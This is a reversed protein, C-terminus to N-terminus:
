ERHESNQKRGTFHDMTNHVGFIKGALFDFGKHPLVGKLLPVCRVMFPEQLINKNKRVAAIIKETIFEPTLLPTLLPPRVGDFMGTNIYGPMVTTVQVGTDDRQMELRLSESWGIVAWKSSAYVSMKPNAILGAASAINIIHGARQKIMAPLFELAAHMLGKVNVDITREIDRHTHNEFTEGTVIGANNFLIDVVVEKEKLDKAARQIQEADGMDVVSTMADHGQRALENRATDLGNGNVDWLIVRRAGSQLCADIMLRGIGSAAGTVLVTKNNLDTM